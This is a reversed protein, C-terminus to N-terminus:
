YFAHRTSLPFPRCRRTTSVRSSRHWRMDFRQTGKRRAMSNVPSVIDDADIIAHCTIITLLRCRTRQILIAPQQAQGYHETTLSRSTRPHKYFVTHSCTLPPIVQSSTLPQPHNPLNPTHAVPPCRPYTLRVRVQTHPPSFGTPPSKVQHLSQSM